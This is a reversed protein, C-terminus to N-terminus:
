PRRLHLGAERAALVAQARDLVALKTCISSVHNRVTKAALGLALAIQGNTEGLALRAAVDRERATLTPFTLQGAETGHILHDVLPGALEGAIITAGLGVAFIAQVVDDPESSRPLVGHVGAGLAAVVDLPTPADLLALVRGGHAPCATAGVVAVDAAGTAPALGPHADVLRELALRLLPYLDDVAGLKARIAVLHHGVTKPSLGLHAAVRRRGAGRALLDLVERERGSLQPFPDHTGAALLAEWAPRLAPAIFLGGRAAVEVASTVVAATADFDVVARVGVRLAAALRAPDGEVVCLVVVV